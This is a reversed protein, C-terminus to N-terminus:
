SSFCSELESSIAITPMILSKKNVKHYGYKEEYGPHVIGLNHTFHFASVWTTIRYYMTLYIWLIFIGVSITAM